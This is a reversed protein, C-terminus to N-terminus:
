GTGSDFKDKTSFLPEGSVIDVYIGETENDWYENQTEDIGNQTLNYQLKTLTKLKEEKNFDDYTAQKNSNTAKKAV